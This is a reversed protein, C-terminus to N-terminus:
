KENEIGEEYFTLPVPKQQLDFEVINKDEILKGTHYGSHYITLTNDVLWTDTDYFMHAKLIMPHKINHLYFWFDLIKDSPLLDNGYSYKNCASVLEGIKTLKIYSKLGMYPQRKWWKIVEAKSKRPFWFWYRYGYEERVLVLPQGPLVTKGLLFSLRKNIQRFM